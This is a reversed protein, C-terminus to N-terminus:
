LNRFLVFSKNQWLLISIDVFSNKQLSIVRIFVFYIKFGSQSGQHRQTTLKEAV